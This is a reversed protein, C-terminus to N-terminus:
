LSFTYTTGINFESEIQIGQNGESGLLLALENSQILGMGLNNPNERVEQENRLKQKSQFLKKL